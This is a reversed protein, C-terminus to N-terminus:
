HTIRARKREALAALVAHERKNRGSLPIGRPVKGEPMLVPPVLYVGRDDFLWWRLWQRRQRAPEKALLAFFLRWPILLRPM